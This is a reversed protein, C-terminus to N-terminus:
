GRKGPASESVPTMGYLLAHGNYPENIEIKGVYDFRIELDFLRRVLLGFMVADILGALDILSRGCPDPLVMVLALVSIQTKEGRGYPWAPWGGRDDGASM